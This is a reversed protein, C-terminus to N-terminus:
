DFRWDFRWDFGVATMWVASIKRNMAVWVSMRPNRNGISSCPAIGDMVDDDDDDDDDVGSHLMWSTRM